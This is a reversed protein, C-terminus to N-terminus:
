AAPHSKAWAVLFDLKQSDTMPQETQPQYFVPTPLGNGSIGLVWGGSQIKQMDLAAPVSGMPNLTVGGLMGPMNRTTADQFSFPGPIPVIAPGTADAGVQYLPVNGEDDMITRAYAVPVAFAQDRRTTGNYPSTASTDQPLLFDAVPLGNYVIELPM